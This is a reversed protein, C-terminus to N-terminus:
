QPPLQPAGSVKIHLRLEDAPIGTILSVKEIPFGDKIMELATELKGEAIGKNRAGRMRSEADM